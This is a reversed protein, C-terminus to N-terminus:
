TFTATQLTEQLDALILFTIHQSNDQRLKIDTFDRQPRDNSLLLPPTIITVKKAM